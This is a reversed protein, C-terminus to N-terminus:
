RRASREPEAPVLVDRELEVSVSRHIFRVSVVFRSKGLKKAYQMAALPNKPSGDAEPTFAWYNIGKKM